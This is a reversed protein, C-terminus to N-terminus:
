RGCCGFVAAFVRLRPDLSMDGVDWPYIVLGSLAIAVILYSAEARM